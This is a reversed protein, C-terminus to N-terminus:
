NSQAWLPVRRSRKTPSKAMREWEDIDSRRRRIRSPQGQYPATSLVEGRERPSHIMRNRPFIIMLLRSHSKFGYCAYSVENQVSKDAGTRVADHSYFFNSDMLIQLSCKRWKRIIFWVYLWKNYSARAVLEIFWMMKDKFQKTGKESNRKDTYEGAELQEVRM